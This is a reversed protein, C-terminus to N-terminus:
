GTVVAEQERLREKRCATAKLTARRGGAGCGATDASNKDFTQTKAPSLINQTPIKTQEVTFYIDSSQPKGEKDGLRMYPVQPSKFSLSYRPTGSRSARQSRWGALAPRCIGPNQVCTALGDSPLTETEVASNM